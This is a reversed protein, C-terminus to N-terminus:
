EVGALEQPKSEDCTALFDVYQKEAVVYSETDIITFIGGELSYFKYDGCSLLLKGLDKLEWGALAAAESNYEFIIKPKAERILRQAGILVFQEHGEADMKILAPRSVTGEEILDDLRVVDVISTQMADTKKTHMSASGMIAPDYRIEAREEESGLAVQFPTMNSFGNLQQSLKLQSFTSPVPEFSWVKGKSGVSQAMVGSFYGINAGIDMATDGPKLLSRLLREIHPEWVGHEFCTWGVSWPAFGEFPSIALQVGNQMRWVFPINQRLGIAHLLRLVSRKGRHNKTNGKYYLYLKAWLPFYSANKHM